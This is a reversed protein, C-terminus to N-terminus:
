DRWMRWAIIILIIIMKLNMVVRMQIEVGGGKRQQGAVRGGQHAASQAYPQACLSPSPHPHLEPCSCPPNEAPHWRAPPPHRATCSSRRGPAPRRCPPSRTQLSTPPFRCLPAPLYRVPYDPM